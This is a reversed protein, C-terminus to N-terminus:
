RGDPCRPRRPAQCGHAYDPNGLLVDMIREVRYSATNMSPCRGQCKKGFHAFKLDERWRGEVYGSHLSYDVAHVWEHVFTTALDQPEEDYGPNYLTIQTAKYDPRGTVATARHLRGTEWVVQAVCPRQQLTDALQAMTYTSNAIFQEPATRIVQWFDARALMADADALARLIKADGGEYAYHVSRYGTASQAFLGHSVALLAFGIFHRM